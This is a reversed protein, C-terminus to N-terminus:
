RLLVVLAALQLRRDVSRRRGDEDDRNGDPKSCCLCNGKGAFFDRAEKQAKTGEEVEVEPVCPGSYILAPGAVVSQGRGM